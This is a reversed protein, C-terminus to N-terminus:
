LTMQEAASENQAAFTRVKERVALSKASKKRFVQM